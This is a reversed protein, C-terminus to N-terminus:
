FYPVRILSVDVNKRWTPTSRAMGMRRTGRGRPSLVTSTLKGSHALMYVKVGSCGFGGWLMWGEKAGSGGRWCGGPGGPSRGRGPVHGGRVVELIARGMMRGAERANWCGIRMGNRTTRM